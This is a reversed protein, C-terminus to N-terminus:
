FIASACAKSLGTSTIRQNLRIFRPGRLGSAWSATSSAVLCSSPKLAAHFSCILQCRFDYHNKAGTSFEPALAHARDSPSRNVRKIGTVQDEVTIQAYYRGNREWLGRIPRKRQDLVKNYRSARHQNQSVVTGTGSNSAIATAQM